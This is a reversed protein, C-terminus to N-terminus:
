STPYTRGRTALPQLPVTFAEKIVFATLHRVLVTEGRFEPAVQLVICRLMAGFAAPNAEPKGGPPNFGM